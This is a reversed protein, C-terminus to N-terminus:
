FYSPIKSRLGLTLVATLYLPNLSLTQAATRASFSVMFLSNKKKVHRQLGVRAIAEENVLKVLDCMRRAVTPLVGRSSHDARRLFRKRVVCLVVSFM